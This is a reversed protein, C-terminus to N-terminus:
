NKKFLVNFRYPSNLYFKTNQNFIKIKLNKKKSIKKFFSKEYYLHDYKDNKQLYLSEGLIKSKKKKYKIEKKKDPIDLILVQGNKNLFSIMKYIVKKSYDYNDFYQFVSNSIIIDFKKKFFKIKKYDGVIYSINPLFKKVKKILNLSYDIGYLNNHKSKHLINLLAGAGCGYELINSNKSIKLLKVKNKVYNEYGKKDFKGLKTDFGNTKIVNTETIKKFKAGKKNWIKLWNNGRM